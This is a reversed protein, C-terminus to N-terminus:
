WTNFFLMFAGAVQLWAQFGGDPVPPPSWAAPAASEGTPTASDSKEPDNGAQLSSNELEGNAQKEPDNANAGLTTRDLSTADAKETDPELMPDAQVRGITAAM